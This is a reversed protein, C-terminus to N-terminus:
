ETASDAYRLMMLLPSFWTFTIFYIRISNSANSARRCHRRRNRSLRVHREANNTSPQKHLFHFHYFLSHWTKSADNPKCWMQLMYDSWRWWWEIRNYISIVIPTIQSVIWSDETQNSHGNRANKSIEGTFNEMNGNKMWDTVSVPSLCSDLLEIMSCCTRATHSIFDVEHPQVCQM